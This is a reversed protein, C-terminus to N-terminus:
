NGSTCQCYQMKILPPLQSTLTVNSQPSRESLLPIAVFCIREGVIQESQYGQMLLHQLLAVLFDAQM